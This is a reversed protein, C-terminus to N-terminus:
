CASGTQTLLGLRWPLSNYDGGSDPDRGQYLYRIHCPDITLTQDTGARVMEGHSIDKTWQGGPFTVNAAGAFPASETDALPTWPGAVSSSTWSRFYRGQAGIAEVMLLYQDAGAVKYVNSAEFLAYKDADQAAIVPDSMGNPFNAVPTQSRYLHGNDDSSFLHCNAADCIVWMDVWYGSGINQQIIAPMSPYFHKPASWGSPNGIDPNTSYAANGDQYVLYWLNQPAFYFVEPAARYGTGIGSQDLYYHTASGAQAWDPFSLYVMNYGAANAVSAFVHYKGGAYVVSPDKIGAIDHTADPKPAILAGSSSWSYRAPLTGGGPASPGTWRQNAGGNCTWIIVKTGNATAAGNVDLCLGSQGNTVTGSGTFTWKQGAGGTCDAIVAATGAATGGGATGLCRKGAGSYVSLEGASGRTWQQNAGSHCDWIQVQTGATGASGPVDLCRNSATARVPGTSGGPDPDGGNLVDLVATYAQKKGYNGDFLLPTDGSRWSYKDTVGWVTIGTCRSVAMCAQTVQRYVNAQGSGSGGIDLETIQVDVGLDAFRQLNAQYSGLNSNSSLHSQFGVCDIPVGRSKFDRVMNYIGTSKANIGDTNYDNYCLKANPDAARAARFADELYGDGLKQQFTAQRRTGNEEFAENVVDWAIVQGKWHGAVQSIHNLMASRLNNADLGGVWPALQQYWVLTHGRIKMGKSRAQSVIQDAPGFNFQNRNPEVTAWKMENEPTVGNFESTWTNVYAAEGLHSTSIAAGFYRGTQAAAAGLTSAAGAVGPSLVLAAASLGATALVTVAKRLRRRPPSGTIM